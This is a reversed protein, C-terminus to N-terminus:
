RRRAAAGGHARRAAHRRRAGVVVVPNRRGGPVRRWRCARALGRSDVRSSQADANALEHRETDDIMRRTADAMSYDSAPLQKSQLQTGMGYDTVMSRSIEHVKRLDDSAGTTVQGFILHETVRGGLLVVLYDMLEDKTKLYRDEEAALSAGACIPSRAFDRDFSVLSQATSWRWPPSTADAALDRRRRGRPLDARLNELHSSGPRVAMHGPQARVARLFDFADSLSTPVAFIRRNTSLRVFSVWAAGAGSYREPGDVLAKSEQYM